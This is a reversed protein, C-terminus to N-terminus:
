ASTSRSIFALAKACQSTMLEEGVFCQRSSAPKIFKRRASYPQNIHREVRRNRLNWRWNPSFAVYGRQGCLVLIEIRVLHYAKMQGREDGSTQPAFSRECRRADGRPVGLDFTNVVGRNAIKRDGGDAYLLPEIAEAGPKSLDRHRAQRFDGCMWESRFVSATRLSPLPTLGIVARRTRGRM